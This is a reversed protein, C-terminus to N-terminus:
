QGDTIFKLSRARFNFTLVAVTERANLRGSFTAGSVLSRTRSYTRRDPYWMFPIARERRVWDVRVIPTITDSM